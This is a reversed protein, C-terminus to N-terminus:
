RARTPIAVALATQVRATWDGITDMRVNNQELHIFRHQEPGGTSSPHGLCPDAAGNSALGQTNSEGCFAMSDPPATPDNCWRADIDPSKLALFFADAPTGPIVYRTGNSVRADGNLDPRFNTHLQLVTASSDRFALHMANVANHISHSPDSEVAVGTKNCQNSNRCGSATTVACRHAGAIILVKAQLGEFLLASEADTGHDEPVHPAEIVLDRGFNHSYVLRAQGAPAAETPQLLLYCASDTAIPLLEYKARRAAAAAANLDAADLARTAAVVDNLADLSLPAYAWSHSLGAVFASISSFRLTNPATCDRLAALEQMAPATGASGSSDSCGLVSVWLAMLSALKVSALRDALHVGNAAVAKV